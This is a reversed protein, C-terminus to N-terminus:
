VRLPGPFKLPTTTPDNCCPGHHHHRHVGGLMNCDNTVLALPGM